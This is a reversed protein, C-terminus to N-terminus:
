ALFSLAENNSRTKNKNLKVEYTSEIYDPDLEFGMAAIQSDITIKTEPNLSANAVIELYYGEPIDYGWNRMVPFITDTIFEEIDSIDADTITQLVDQHVEGQSRSSGDDKTMTQGVVSKSIESNVRNIKEDFVHYSDRQSSEKIELDVRKDFIAYSAKGMQELWLQLDDKHKQTNIMTKAVRIPLGFIQEFEDWAAWSHRKFITMPAIRELEGISDDGLQMYIIFNPYDNYAISESSPDLPNKIIIGMEPIVTERKIEKVSIINGHEAKDILLASYGFFKSKVAEKIIQKFWKKKLLQSRKIDANGEADKILFQKNSVNLIRDRICSFLHNDLMSDKYLQQIYYTSPRFPDHRNIRANQWDAIEKRYLSEYFHFYDVQYTQENSETFPPTKGLRNKNDPKNALQLGTVSQQRGNRPKHYYKKETAM